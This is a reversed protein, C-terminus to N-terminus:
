IIQYNKNFDFHNDLIKKDIFHYSLSIQQYYNKVVYIPTNKMKTGNDLELEGVYISDFNKEWKGDYDTIRLTLNEYLNNINTDSILKQKIESEDIPQFNNNLVVKTIGTFLAFRIIGGKLNKEGTAESWGGQNIANKFDTFYYYPGFLLNNDPKSVGFIYTFNIRSIDKGVYVVCPMEYNKENIDKLIVFEINQNFFDVVLSNIKINCVHTKNIIEDPLVQWIISNKHINNIILKCNTFDFFLYINNKYYYSGKYKYNNDLVINYLISNMKQTIKSIINIVNDDSEFCPFTLQKTEFDNKLLFNLFPYLENNNVRYGCIYFMKKTGDSKLINDLKDLKDLGPYKYFNPEDSEYHNLCKENIKFM